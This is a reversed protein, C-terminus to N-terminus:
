STMVRDILPVGPGANAILSLSALAQHTEKYRQTIHELTDILAMASAFAAPGQVSTPNRYITAACRACAAARLCTRSCASPSASARSPCLTDHWHLSGTSQQTHEAIITSERERERERERWVAFLTNHIDHSIPAPAAACDLCGMLTLLSIMM